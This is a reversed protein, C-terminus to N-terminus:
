NEFIETLKRSIFIRPFNRSFLMYYLYFLIKIYKYICIYIYIYILIDISDVHKWGHIIRCLEVDFEFDYKMVVDRWRIINEIYIYIYICVYM